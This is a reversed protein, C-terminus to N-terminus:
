CPILRVTYGSANEEAKMVLARYSGFMDLNNRRLSDGVASDGPLERL